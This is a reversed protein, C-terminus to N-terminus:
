ESGDNAEEEEEQLIDEPLVQSLAAYMCQWLAVGEGQEDSSNAHADDSAVLFLHPEIDGWYQAELADYLARCVKSTINDM